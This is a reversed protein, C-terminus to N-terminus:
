VISFVLLMDLIMQAYPFPFPIEAIKRAESSRSIVFVLVVFRVM